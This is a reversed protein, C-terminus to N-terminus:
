QKSSIAALEQRLEASVPTDCDRLPAPRVPCRSAISPLWLYAARVYRSSLTALVDFRIHQSDPPQVIELFRPDFKLNAICALPEERFKFKRRVTGYHVVNFLEDKGDG